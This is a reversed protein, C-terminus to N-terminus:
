VIQPGAAMLPISSAVQGDETTLEVADTLAEALDGAKQYRQEPKKSLTKLIVQEVEEPIQANLSRPRCPPDNMLKMMLAFPTDARFPVRGTVLEFLIVGLAYIDSRLDGREGQGQEPAMYAPTGFVKGTGTHLGTGIIRAFGFDTLVVDGDGTFMVNAPKLDHHVMGQAHAFDVASALAQYIHAIEPLSFPRNAAQRAELEAKLTPGSILEMVLYYRAAEVDFDHIQVINAHRLKAMLEAEREFRVIFDTEDALHGHLVKLAVNRKLSTQYAQYVEAVGGRGLRALLRYKGLTKGVLDSVTRLEEVQQKLRQERLYFEHAMQQFVRTLQGLSDPRGAVDSLSEPDFTENEIAAAAETLRDVQRLYEVEQARFHKKELCARIRAKLLVPDFTKPLYDEAGLEIGQVVNTLEQEASIVIVPIDRLTSDAKMQALVQYGNMEPMIIDLLVLDFPQARLMQLAQRGDEATATTHGLKKVAMSIKLRNTKHDDVVLIHGQDNTM